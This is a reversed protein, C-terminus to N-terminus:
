VRLRSVGVGISICGSHLSADECIASGCGNVGFASFFCVVFNRRCIKLFGEIYVTNHQFILSQIAFM